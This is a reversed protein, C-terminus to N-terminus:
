FIEPRRRIHEKVIFTKQGNVPESEEFQSIPDNFILNGIQAFNQIETTLKKWQNKQRRKFYPALKKGLTLYITLSDPSTVGLSIMKDLASRCNELLNKRNEKQSSTDKLKWKVYYRVIAAIAAILPITKLFLLFTM